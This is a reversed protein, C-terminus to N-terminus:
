TNEQRSSCTWVVMLRTSGGDRSKVCAQSMYEMHKQIQKQLVKERIGRSNLAKVLTHLEEM